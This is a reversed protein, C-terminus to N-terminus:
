FLVPFLHLFDDFGCPFIVADRPGSLLRNGKVPHEGVPDAAHAFPVVCLGDLELVDVVLQGLLLVLGRDELFPATEQIKEVARNVKLEGEHVHRRICLAKFCADPDRQCMVAKVIDALFIRLHQLGLKGLSVVAERLGLIQGEADLRIRDPLCLRPEGMDLVVQHIVEPLKTDPCLDHVTFLAQLEHVVHEVHAIHLVLEPEVPLPKHAGAKGHFVEDGRCGKGEGPAANELHSAEVAGHAIESNRRRIKGVLEQFVEQVHIRALDDRHVDLGDVLRLGDLGDLMRDRLKFIRSMGTM